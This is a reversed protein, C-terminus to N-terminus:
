SCVRKLNIPTDATTFQWGVTRTAGNRPLRRTDTQRQIAAPDGVRQCLSPHSSGTLEIEAINLWGGHTPAHHIDPRRDPRWEEAPDSAECSSSLSHTSLTKMELAIGHADPHEGDPSERIEHVWDLRTRRATM